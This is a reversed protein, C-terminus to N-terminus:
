QCEPGSHNSCTSGGEIENLKSHIARALYVSPAERQSITDSHLGAMRDQRGLCSNVLEMDRRLTRRMAEVINGKTPPVGMGSLELGVRQFFIQDAKTM